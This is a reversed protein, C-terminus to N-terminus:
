QCSCYVSYILGPPIFKKGFPGSHVDHHDTWNKKTFRITVTIASSAPQKSTFSLPLLFFLTPRGSSDVLTTKVLVLNM